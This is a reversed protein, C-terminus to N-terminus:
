TKHQFRAIVIGPDNVGYLYACYLIWFVVALAGSGASGITIALVGGNWASHTSRSFVKNRTLTNGVFMAIAFITASIITSQFNTSTLAAYAHLAGFLIAAFIGASVLSILMSGALDRVPGVKLQEIIILGIGIVAIAIGVEMAINALIAAIVIGLLLFMPGFGVLQFLFQFLPELFNVRFNEELEPAVWQVVFHTALLAAGTAISLTAPVLSFETSGLIFPISFGILGGVIVIIWFYLPKTADGYVDYKPVKVDKSKVVSKDGYVARLVLLVTEGGLTVLALSFYITYWDKSLTDTIVGVLIVILFIFSMLFYRLNPATIVNEKLKM